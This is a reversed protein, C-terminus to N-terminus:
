APRIELEAFRRTSGSEVEFGERDTTSLRFVYEGVRYRVGDELGREEILKKMKRNATNYRGAVKATLFREDLLEELEPDEITKEEFASQPDPAFNRARRNFESLPMKGSSIEEGGINTKVEITTEDDTKMTM